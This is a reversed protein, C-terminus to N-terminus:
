HEKIIRFASGDLANNLISQSAKAPWLKRLVLDVVQQVSAPLFQFCRPRLPQLHLRPLQVPCCQVQAKVHFARCNVLWSDKSAMHIWIVSWQGLLMRIIGLQMSCYAGQQSDTRETKTWVRLASSTRCGWNKGSSKIVKEFAEPRPFVNSDWWQTSMPNVRRAALWSHLCSAWGLLQLQLRPASLVFECLSSHTSNGSSLIIRFLVFCRSSNFTLLESHLYLKILELPLTAINPWINTGIWSSFHHSHISTAIAAYNAPRTLHPGPIPVWPISVVRLQARVSFWGIDWILRKHSKRPIGVPFCLFYLFSAAVLFFVVLPFFFLVSQFVSFFLLDGTVKGGQGSRTSRYLQEGLVLVEPEHWLILSYLTLNM